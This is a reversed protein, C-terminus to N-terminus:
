HPEEPMVAGSLLASLRPLSALRVSQGAVTVIGLGALLKLATAVSQRTLGTMQVLKAQSVGLAANIHPSGTPAGDFIMRLAYAVRGRADQYAGNAAAQVIYRMWVTLANLLDSAMKQDSWFCELFTARTIKWAKVDKFAVWDQHSPETHFMTPLGVMVGPSAFSLTHRDGSEMPTVFEIVGQEILFIQNCPAGAHSIVDGASFRVETADSVLRRLTAGSWGSYPATARLYPELAEPM